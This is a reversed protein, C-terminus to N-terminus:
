QIIQSTQSNLREIDKEKAEKRDLEEETNELYLEFGVCVDASVESLFFCSSFSVLRVLM